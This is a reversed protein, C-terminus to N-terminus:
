DEHTGQVDTPVFDGDGKKNNGRGRRKLRPLVFRGSFCINPLETRCNPCYFRPFTIKWAKKKKM